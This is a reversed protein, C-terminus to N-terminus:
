FAEARNTLGSPDDVTVEVDLHGYDPRRIRGHVTASEGIESGNCDIWL